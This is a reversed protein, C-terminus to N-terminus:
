KNISKLEEIEASLEKISEVLLGIIKEYKVGLTGDEKEHVVEPLVKEVDQAIIGTDRKRLVKKREDNLYEDKWDFTVGRIQNVKWLAEPIIEINEKLSEDSSHFAIVDGKVQLDHTNNNGITYTGPYVSAMSVSGSQNDSNLTTFSMGTGAAVSTVTGVGTLGASTIGTIHGRSDLTIDQIFNNGSNNVSGQSSTDAHNVTLTNGSIATSIFTGGAITVKNSNSGSFNTAAGTDGDINTITNTDSNQVDETITITDGSHSVTIGTGGAFTVTDTSTVTESGSTDTTFNWHSYNDATTSITGNSAVNILGTGSLTAGDSASTIRGQADVAISNLKLNGGYTAATVGSNNLRITIDNGNRITTLGQSGSFQVTEGSTIPESAGSDADISWSVYNDLNGVTATNINTIHGYTDLTIDQIFTNGSQNVSAQSSTNAHQIGVTDAGANTIVIGQVSDVNVPKITLTDNNSDAAHTTIDTGAHTQLKINKFINQSSGKDTNTFTVTHTGSSLAVSESLGSGATFVLNDGTSFNQGEIQPSGATASSLLPSGDMEWRGKPAGGGPDYAFNFVISHSGTVNSAANPHKGNSDWTRSNITQNARGSFLRTELGFGGTTPLTGSNGMLVLTDEVQLTSTNLTVTDGQVILDGTVTLDNGVVVDNPLGITVTNGSVATTVEGSTGALTMTEGLNVSNTTGSDADLEFSSNSLKNNPISGALKAAAISGALMSNEVSGAQITTALTYTATQLDSLTVSGGIDGSLQITPDADLNIDFNQNTADWNVAVGTEVNNAFLEKANYFTVLDAVQSAGSDDLGKVQFARAEKNGSVQTENFRIEVDPAGSIHNSREFSLGRISANPTLDIFATDFGLSSGAGGGTLLTGSRIDLTTGSGFTLTKGNTGFTLNTNLTQASSSVLKMSADANADVENIAVVLDAKNTTTLSAKTGLHDQLETIGGVLTTASYGSEDDISAVNGIEADLENIGAVLDNATTTLGAAVLNNSTGRIGVELENISTVVDATTNTNLATIDGVDDQVENIADVLSHSVVKIVDGSSAANNLQIIRGYTTDISTKGTHQSALITDTSTSRGSTGPHVRLAASANYTGSDTKLRVGDAVSASLVKGRFTVAAATLDTQASSAQYVEVNEVFETLTPSGTLAINAVYNPTRFTNAGSLAQTLETAGNYGRVRGVPLSESHSINDLVEEPKIEYRMTAHEFLTQSAAATFSKTKDLIRSDILKNDGVDFSVDNSKQRFEELTNSKIIRTEDNQAM